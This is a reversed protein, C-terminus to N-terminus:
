EGSTESVSGSSGSPQGTPNGTVIEMAKNIVDILEETDAKAARAAARFKQWESEHLADQLMRYIAALGESGQSELDRDAADAWELLPMSGVKEAVHFKQGAFEIIGTKIENKSAKVATEDSGELQIKALKRDEASTAM